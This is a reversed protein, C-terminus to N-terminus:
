CFLRPIFVKGFHMATPFRKFKKKLNKHGQPNKMARFTNQYFTSVTMKRYDHTCMARFFECELPHGTKRINTLAASLTKAPFYPSKM